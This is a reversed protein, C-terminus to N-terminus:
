RRGRRYRILNSNSIISTKKMHQQSASIGRAFINISPTTSVSSLIPMDNLKSCLAGAIINKSPNPQHGVSAGSRTDSCFGQPRIFLRGLRLKHVHESGSPNSVKYSCVPFPTPPRGHISSCHAISYLTPTLPESFSNLLKETPDISGISQSLCSELLDALRFERCPLCPSPVIQECCSFQKGLLRGCSCGGVFYALTSAWSNRRSRSIDMLM